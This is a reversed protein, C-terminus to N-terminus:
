DDIEWKIIDGTSGDIEFEYKYGNYYLEGEYEIRGNEYDREIEIINNETAGDVRSVAIEIAKDMGIDSAESGGSGSSGESIGSDNSGSSDSLSQTYSGSSTDADSGCGSMSLTTAALLLAMVAIISIKKIDTKQRNM